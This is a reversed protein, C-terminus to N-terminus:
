RLAVIQDWTELSGHRQMVEGDEDEDDDSARYMHGSYDMVFLPMSAYPVAAYWCFLTREHATTTGDVWLFRLVLAIRLTLITTGHSRVSRQNSKCRRACLADVSCLLPRPHVPGDHLLCHPRYTHISQVSGSRVCLVPRCPVARLRLSVQRGCFTRPFPISPMPSRTPRSLTTQCRARTTSSPAQMPRVFAGRLVLVCSPPLRHSTLHPNFRSLSRSLLIRNSPIAFSLFRHSPPSCAWHAHWASVASAM